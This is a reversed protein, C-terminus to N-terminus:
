YDSIFVFRRKCSGRVGEIDCENKVKSEEDEEKNCVLVGGSLSNDGRRGPQIVKPVM